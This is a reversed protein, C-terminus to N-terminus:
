NLNLRSARPTLLLHVFPPNLKTLAASICSPPARLRSVKASVIGLKFLGRYLGAMEDTASRAVDADVAQQWQGVQSCVSSVQPGPRPLTASPRRPHRTQAAAAAAATTTARHRKPRPRASPLSHPPMRRLDIDTNDLTLPRCVVGVM